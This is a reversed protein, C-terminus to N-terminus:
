TAPSLWIAMANRGHRLAEVILERYPECASASPARGPPSPPKPDTSVAESIAPKAPGSDTSVEPTTAPKSPGPDTSVGSTTAPKPPWVGPRGGRERVPIKAAKLYASATERRVTTAQEIRRLSWGLRGLALVQQQKNDGLVNSMGAYSCRNGAQTNRDMTFVVIVEHEDRLIALRDQAPFHRRLDSVHNPLDTPRVIDVNQLPVHTRVMYMQQQAHRRMKSRAADHLRNLPLRRVMQQHITSLETLREPASVQPRTAVEDRGAAIHGVVDNSLINPQLTDLGLVVLVKSDGLLRAQM